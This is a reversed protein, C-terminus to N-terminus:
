GFTIISPGDCLKHKLLSVGLIDINEIGYYARTNLCRISKSKLIFDLKSKHLDVVNDFM